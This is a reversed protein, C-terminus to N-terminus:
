GRNTASAKSVPRERFGLRAVFDLYVKFSKALTTRPMAVPAFSKKKKVRCSALFRLMGPSNRWEATPRVRSTLSCIMVEFRMSASSSCPRGVKSTEKSPRGTEEKGSGTCFYMWCPTSSPNGAFANIEVRLGQYLISVRRGGDMNNAYKPRLFQRNIKFWAPTNGSVLKRAM